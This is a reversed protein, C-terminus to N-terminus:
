LMKKLNDIYEKSFYKDFDEDYRLSTIDYTGPRLHGYKNLFIEKSLEGISYLYIDKSMDKSITHIAEMFENYRETSIINEEVLSLLISKGIFAFRALNSFPLTGYKKLIQTLEYIKDTDFKDSKDSLIENKYKELKKLRDYEKEIRKMEPAVINNTLIVLEKNIEKIENISFNHEKLINLKKHLNISNCTFCIEFEVKDHLDPNNKLKRLYYNCLKNSSNDNLNEPILSSFSIRTDIYPRNILSILLPHNTLDKYGCEKRSLMAIFDTIIEKYLSLALQKPKLGIIEAPNWDTM